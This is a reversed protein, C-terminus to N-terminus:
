IICRNLEQKLMENVDIDEDKSEDPLVNFIGAAESISHKAYRKDNKM